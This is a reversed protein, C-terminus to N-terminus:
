RIVFIYGNASRTYMETKIIMKFRHSVVNYICNGM